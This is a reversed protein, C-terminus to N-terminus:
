SKLIYVYLLGGSVVGSLASGALTISEYGVIADGFFWFALFAYTMFWGIGYMLYFLFCAMKQILRKIKPKMTM